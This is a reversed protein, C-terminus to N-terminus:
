RKLFKRAKKEAFMEILRSFDMERAMDCNINLMALGNLREQLMNSRLCNKIRKLVSFSRENSAVTAPLTLFIRLATLVNPFIAKLGLGYIEEYIDRPCVSKEFNAEYVNKLRLIEEEIDLSVHKSYLKQFTKVKDALENETTQTFTWLFDFRNCIDHVATFRRTLGAIISDVIVYFVDTKFRDRAEEQTEGRKTAFSTTLEINSAVIYAEDLIEPWMERMHEISTVIKEINLREVDLTANKRQIMLNTDHIDTLLKVWISSM